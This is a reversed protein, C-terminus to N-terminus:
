YTFLMGSGHAITEGETAHPLWRQIRGNNFDAVYLINTVEDITVSIPDSFSASDNGADGSISGALTIGDQADKLWKQVRNNKSDAVYLTGHIPDIHIGQPSNLQNSMSGSQDTQGAIVTTNNTQHSWKLVRHRITESMYVNKENDVAIGTCWRCEGGVQVSESSGNVWREVRNSEYLAAYITPETNGDDDVYVNSPFTVNSAVTVGIHLSRNLSFMQIRHNNFDAVYLRNLPKYIFIGEPGDLQNSSNGPIGTGAITVGTTNWRACPSITASTLCFCCYM